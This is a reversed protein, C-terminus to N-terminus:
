RIYVVAEDTDVDIQRIRPALAAVQSERSLLEDFRRLVLNELADPLRMRGISAFLPEFSVGGGGSRSVFRGVLTNYVPLFGFLKGKLVLKVYGSSLFRISVHQPVFPGKSGSSNQGLGFAQNALATAEESNFKVKVYTRHRGVMRRFRAQAQQLQQPDLQGHVRVAPPLLLLAALAALALFVALTIIRVVITVATKPKQQKELEVEPRLEDLNLRAGCTRCFIAGIMNDAGCKPCKIM